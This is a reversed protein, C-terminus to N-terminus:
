VVSKRDLEREQPELHVDSAGAHMADEFLSQLLKVVPAQEQGVSAQLAGFDVADGVDKELAKALGTIEETRRYHKDFAVPLQSEAVVAMQIPRRLLRTLEDYAFLDLPDAMAVTLHEGKDELVIARHRRAPSEALLRVTEARLPFTKLNVFPIRLQAALAQVVADETVVGHEILLRGLRKGTQKGEDLARQLQQESVLRQQVLVDGLRLKPPRSPAPPATAAAPANSM